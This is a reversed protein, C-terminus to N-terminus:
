AEMWVYGHRIGEPPAFPEFREVDSLFYLHKKKTEPKWEYDSGPYVRTRNRLSKWTNFDEVVAHGTIRASCRVMNKAKGHGTEIFYVRQGVLARLTDRNRTEIDKMLGMIQDIFPQKSCNIYVFFM